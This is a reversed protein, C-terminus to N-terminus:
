FSKGTAIYRDTLECWKAVLRKVEEVAYIPSLTPLNVFYRGYRYDRHTSSLSTDRQGYSPMRFICVRLRADSQHEFSFTYVAGSQSHYTLITTKRQFLSALWRLLQM